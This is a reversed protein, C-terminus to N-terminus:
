EASDLRERVSNAKGPHLGQQEDQDASELECHIWFKPELISKHSYYRALTEGSGIHQHPIKQVMTSGIAHCSARDDHALLIVPRLHRQAYGQVLCSRSLM